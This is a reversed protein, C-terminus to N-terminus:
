QVGMMSGQILQSSAHLEVDGRDLPEDVLVPRELVRDLDHMEDLVQPDIGRLEDDLHADPPTAVRGDELRVKRLGAEDAHVLHV